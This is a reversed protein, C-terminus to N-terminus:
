FQLGSVLSAVIPVVGLLAFSPLFCVALPIVARVAASRAAAQAHTFYDRRADAAVRDLLPAVGAGTEAHRTMAAALETLAGLDAATRWAGAAPAGLRRHRAVVALHEGLPPPTAGAVLEIADTDTLGARLVAALLDVVDPLARAVALARQDAQRTFGRPLLRLSVGAAAAGVPVSWPWPLVIVAALAVAAAGWRDLRVPGRTGPSSEASSTLRSRAMRPRPFLVLAVALLLWTM